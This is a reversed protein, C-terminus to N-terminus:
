GIWWAEGKRDKRRPVTRVTASSEVSRADGRSGAPSHPGSHDSADSIGVSRVRSVVTRRPTGRSAAEELRPREQVSATSTSQLDHTWKRLLAPFDRLHYRRYDLCGEVAARRVKLPPVVWFVSHDYEDQALLFGLGGLSVHEELWNIQEPRVKIRAKSGHAIKLELWIHIGGPGRLLVDPWGSEVANEIRGPRLGEAVAPRRLKSYFRREDTTLM